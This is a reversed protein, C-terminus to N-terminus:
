EISFGLKKCLEIEKKTVELTTWKKNIRIKFITGLDTFIDKLSYKSVLKEKWLINMVRYAMVLSIHNLFCWCEFSSDNHMYSHDQGLLNKLTDFSQEIHSRKKYLAYIESPADDRNTKLILIGSRSQRVCVVASADILKLNKKKTKNIEAIKENKKEIRMLLDDLELSESKPTKFIIVRYGDKKLDYAIVARKNYCFPTIKSPDKYDIDVGKIEISDRKLPIIYKINLETLDTFNEATSFGTDAIITYNVDKNREAITLKLAKMDTINGAVCRYFVPETCPDTAFIYIINVQPIWSKAHNHGVKPLSMERSWSKVRSGDIIINEVTESMLNMTEVILDRREGIIEMYRSIQSPSLSLDPFLESIYSSNYQKEIRKFATEGLCRLIAIVYITDALQTNFFVSRLVEHIDKSLSCIFAVDAYRKPRSINNASLATKKPVFGNETIVGLYDGTKSVSKKKTRDYLHQKEYLYYRGSRLRIERDKAKFPVAWDPLNM